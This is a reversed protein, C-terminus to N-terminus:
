TITGTRTDGGGQVNTTSTVANATIHDVIAGGLAKMCETFDARDENSLTDLATEIAVGLTDGNMAM